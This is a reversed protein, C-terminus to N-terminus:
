SKLQQVDCRLARLAKLIQEEVPLDLDLISRAFAVLEERRFAACLPVDKRPQDPNKEDRMVMLLLDPQDDVLAVELSCRWYVGPFDKRTEEITAYSKRGPRENMLRALREPPIPNM